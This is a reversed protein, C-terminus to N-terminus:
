TSKCLTDSLTSKDFMEPSFQPIFISVQRQDVASATNVTIAAFWLSPFDRLFTLTFACLNKNDDFYTFGLRETSSIELGLSYKLYLMLKTLKTGPILSGEIRGQEYENKEEHKYETLWINEIIDFNKELDILSSRDLDCQILNQEDLDSQTLNLTENINCQNLAVRFDGAVLLQCKKTQM